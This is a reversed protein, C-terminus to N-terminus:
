MPTYGCKQWDGRGNNRAYGQSAVFNSVSCLGTTSDYDKCFSPIQLQDNIFFRVYRTGSCTLRETVLRGSFPVIQSTVWVQGAPPGSAPLAPGNKLGIASLISTIQNDHSADFYVSKDLPFTTPNSDLTHNVQTADLNTYTINGTLRSLLENVYGVGQVPGLPNGYGNGYYKDLDFYYELDNWEQTTFLACWPSVSGYYESDFACLEMFNLTDANTLNTGPAAANLRATAGAAFHALWANEFSSLDPAINCNNDDLTDNSGAAGNIVLVNVSDASRKRYSFFGATWNRASDVVRQSSDSRVFPLATTSHLLSGYRQAALYGAERSQEAGLPTLDDAGLAYTYDSVFALSSGLSKAKKLKAVSAAIKKGASSTPYRAGHRQLINVQDIVCGVPAAVYTGANYYPSYPGVNRGITDPLPNTTAAATSAPAARVSTAVCLGAVLFSCAALMILHILGHLSAFSLAVVEVAHNRHNTLLYFRPLRSLHDVADTSAASAASGRGSVFKAKYLRRM